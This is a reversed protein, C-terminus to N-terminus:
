FLERVFITTHYRLDGYRLQFPWGTFKDSGDILWLREPSTSYLPLAYDVFFERSSLFTGYIILDYDRNELRRIMHTRRDKDSLGDNFDPPDITKSYSYGKGYLPKTWSSNKYLYHPPYMVDVVNPGLWETIGIVISDAMYDVESIAKKNIFM